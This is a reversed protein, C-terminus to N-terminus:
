CAGPGPLIRYTGRETVLCGGTMRGEFRTGDAAILVGPGNPLDDAFQGIFRSGNRYAETGQGNRRDGRWDGEYVGGSWTMIGRGERKDDRWDGEYRDGSPYIQLGRGNRRDNRWQGSYIGYGDQQRGEGTRVGNVWQGDYDPGRPWSRSGRGNPMAHRIEGRYTSADGFRITATKAEGAAFDAEVHTGGPLAITAPGELKGDKFQGQTLSIVAEGKRRLLEGTGNAAGGRCSGSWELSEGPQLDPAWIGCRSRADAVLGRAPEAAPAQPQTPTPTSVEERPPRPRPAPRPPPPLSPRAAPPPPPAPAEDDMTIAALAPSALLLLAALLMHRM